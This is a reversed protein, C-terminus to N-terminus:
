WVLLNYYLVGPRDGKAAFTKSRDCHRGVRQVSLAHDSNTHALTHSTTTNWELTRPAIGTVVFQMPAIRTSAFLIVAVLIVIFNYSSPWALSQSM